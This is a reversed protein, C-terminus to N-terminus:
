FLRELEQKLSVFEPDKPDFNGGLQERTKQLASKLEDALVLEEEKVKTFAFVVDELAVNLLNTTDVSHELAEKTNILALRNNAERSLV